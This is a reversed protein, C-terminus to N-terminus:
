RKRFLEEIILLGRRVGSAIAQASRGGGAPAQVDSGVLFKSSATRGEFQALFAPESLVKPERNEFLRVKELAGKSSVAIGIEIRGNQGPADIFLIVAAKRPRADPGARVIAFYISPKLDEPPLSTGLKMEVDTRQQDSLYLNKQEFTEAEPYLAALKEAPWVLDHAFSMRGAVLLLLCLFPLMFLRNRKRMTEAYAM